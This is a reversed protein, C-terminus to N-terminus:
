DIEDIDLYPKANPDLAFGGDTEICRAMPTLEIKNDNMRVSMTAPFAALCERLEGVNKPRLIAGCQKTWKGGM